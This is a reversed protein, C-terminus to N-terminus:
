ISYDIRITQGLAKHCMLVGRPAQSFTAVQVPLMSRGNTGLFIPSVYSVARNVLGARLFYAITTGGGEVLLQVIGRQALRRCLESLDLPAPLIWVEEHAVSSLPLHTVVITPGLAADFLPGERPVRGQPDIIVRLLPHDIGPLRVTLRPRDVVATTAGILIAQSQARVWQADARAEESSIWQSTGDAAAIKGDLSHAWKVIIFPLGTSRQYLYPALSEEAKQRSVGVRVSLGAKQLAEIGKGSVQPDPDEIAVIVEAIGSAVIARVCPPTRGFHSCPELSTYLTAGRAEEGAQQLAIIEAHATGPRIHYGEGICRGEKVILAGVWPNPPATIRGREGLAIAQDMWAHM